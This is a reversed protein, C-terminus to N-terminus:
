ETLDKLVKVDTFQENPIDTPVPQPAESKLREPRDSAFAPDITKAVQEMSPPPPPPLPAQFPLGPAQPPEPSKPSQPPAPPPSILGRNVEPGPSVESPAPPPEVVFSAPPPPPPPPFKPAQNFRAAQDIPTPMPPSNAAANQMTQWQEMARQYQEMQLQYQSNAMLHFDCLTKGKKTIHPCGDIQCLM